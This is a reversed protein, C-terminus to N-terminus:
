KREIEYLRISDREKTYLLIEPDLKCSGQKSLIANDQLSLKEYSLKNVKETLLSRDKSYGNNVNYFVILLSINLLLLIFTCYKWMM